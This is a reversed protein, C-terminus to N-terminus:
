ASVASPAQVPGLVTQLKVLGGAHAAGLDASITDPPTGGVVHAVCTARNRGNQKAIYMAQDAVKLTDQWSQGPLLPYNVCGASVTVAIPMGNWMVPDIGVVKLVREALVSIGEPPTGPLILVFEEGGWRVVVDHQRVLAQLRRALEVLVLDGAAHGWTDNIHKFHDVDLLMLGVCARYNRDRSRSALLAEQQGMLADCHRRNFAGTLPDHVSQDTLEANSSELQRNRRRARAVMQVLLVAGLALAVAATAWLRQQWERASMEAQRRGSELSLREIELDKREVSFKQQAEAISKERARDNAEDKLQGYKELTEYAERHRGARAYLGALAQTADVVYAKAGSAQLLALGQRATALGKETDGLEVQAMGLSGMVVGKAQSKEQRDALAVAQTALEAALRFSKQTGHYEALNILNVLESDVLGPHERTIRLAENLARLQKDTKGQLSYIWGENGKIYSMMYIFGIRDALEYAERALMEARDLDRRGINALVMLNLSRVQEAPNKTEIALQSSRIAEEIARVHNGSANAIAGRVYHIAQMLDPEAEKVSDLQVLLRNALDFEQKRNAQQIQRVLKYQGCPVCNEMKAMRDLADLERQLAVIDEAGIYLSALAAHYRMRLAAHATPLDASVDKMQKIAIAPSGFGHQRQQELVAAIQEPSSFASPALLLGLVCLLPSLWTKM